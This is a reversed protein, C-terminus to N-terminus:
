TRLVAEADIVIKIMKSVLVGGTELPVNWTLGWDTRDIETSAAFAARANGWPDIVAGTFELDLSVPRTVDKITLEGDLRYRDGVVELNNGTFTMTPYQEVDLFDESLLHTDRGEDGSDLSAIDITVDVSSNGLADAVTIMGTSATFAGRVKAIMMHRAEFTVSLHTPDLNWTGTAPVERGDVVRTPTLTSETTM